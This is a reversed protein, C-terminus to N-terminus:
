HLYLTEPHLLFSLNTCLSTEWMPPVPHYRPPKLRAPCGFTSWWESTTGDRDQASRIRGVRIVTEVFVRPLYLSGPITARLVPSPAPMVQSGRLPEDYALRSYIGHSPRHLFFHQAQHTINGQLCSPYTSPIIPSGSTLYSLFSVLFVLGHIISVYLAPSPFGYTPYYLLSVCYSLPFHVVVKHAQVLLTDM